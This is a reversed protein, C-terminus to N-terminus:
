LTLWKSIAGRCEDTKIPIELVTSSVNREVQLVVALYKVTKWKPPWWEPFRSDGRSPSCRLSRRPYELIKAFRIKYRLRFKDTQTHWRNTRQRQLLAATPVPPRLLACWGVLLECIGPPSGFATPCQCLDYLHIGRASHVNIRDRYIRYIM